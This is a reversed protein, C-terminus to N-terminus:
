YSPPKGIYSVLDLPNGAPLFHFLEWSLYKDHISDANALKKLYGGLYLITLKKQSWKTENSSLSIMRIGAREFIRHFTLVQLLGM